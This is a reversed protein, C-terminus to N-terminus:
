IAADRNSNSGYFLITYSCIYAVHVLLCHILQGSKLRNILYFCVYRSSYVVTYQVQQELGIWHASYM